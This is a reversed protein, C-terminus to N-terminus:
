ADRKMANWRKELVLITVAYIVVIVAAVATFRYEPFLYWVAVILVTRAVAHFIGVWHRSLAAFGLWMLGTLIGVTLPLTTQDMLFVPIAIAYVLCAQFVAFLFARDFFNGKRTKGLLDEGTLKARGLGLYFISGTAIFLVLSAVQVSLFLASVGVIAWAMTGALPMALFRNGSFQKWQEDLTLVSNPSAPSAPV